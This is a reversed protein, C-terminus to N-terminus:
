EFYIDSIEFPFEFKRVLDTIALWKTNTCSLDLTLGSLKRPQVVKRDRSLNRFNLTKEDSKCAIKLIVPHNLNTTWLIRLKSINLPEDFLFSTPESNSQSVIKVAKISMKLKENLGTSGIRVEVVHEWISKKPIVQPPIEHYKFHKQFFMPTQYTYALIASLVLTLITPIKVLTLLTMSPLLLVFPAEFFHELAREFISLPLINAYSEITHAFKEPIIITFFLLKLKTSRSLDIFPLILLIFYCFHVLHSDLILAFVLIISLLWSGKSIESILVSLFGGIGFYHLENALEARNLSYDFSDGFWPPDLRTIGNLSGKIALYSPVDLTNFFIISLVTYASDLLFYKPTHFYLIQRILMIVVAHNGLMVINFTLAAARRFFSESPRYFMLSSLIIALEWSLGFLFLFVFLIAFVKFPNKVALLLTLVFMCTISEKLIPLDYNTYILGGIFERDFLFGKTKLWAVFNNM